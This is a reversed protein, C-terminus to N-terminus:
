LYRWSRDWLGSNLQYSILNPNEVFVPRAATGRRCNVIVTHFM